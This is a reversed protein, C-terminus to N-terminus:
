PCDIVVQRATDRRGVRCRQCADLPQRRSRRVEGEGHELSGRKGNRSDDHGGAYDAEEAIAYREREKDGRQPVEPGRAGGCVKRDRGEEARCERKDNETLRCSPREPASCRQHCEADPQMEAFTMPVAMHVLEQRVLVLVDVVLVVPVLVGERPVPLLRMTMGMVVLGDRVRMRMVGVQVM